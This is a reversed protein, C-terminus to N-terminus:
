RTVTLTNGDITSSYCNLGGACSNSYSNNHYSCNFETGDFSWGDRNGQHPCRNDFARIQSSSIRILLMQEAQYNMWGGVDKLSNFTTANLDITVVSNTPGGINNNNDTGEDTSCAEILPIGLVTMVVPACANKLFDRRKNDM